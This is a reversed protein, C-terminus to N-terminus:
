MAREVIRDFALDDFDEDSDEGARVGELIKIKEHFIVDPTEPDLDLGAAVASAEAARSTLAAARKVKNALEGDGDTADMMQSIVVAVMAGAATLLGGLSGVVDKWTRIFRVKTNLQVTAEAFKVQFAYWDKVDDAAFDTLLNQPKIWKDRLCGDLPLSGDNNVKGDFDCFLRYCLTSSDLFDVSKCESSTYQPPWYTPPNTGPYPVTDRTDDFLVAGTSFGVTSGITETNYQLRYRDHGTWGKNQGKNVPNRYREPVMTIEISSEDEGRFLANSSPFLWGTVVNEDTWCPDFSDAEESFQGYVLCPNDEGSGYANLNDPGLGGLGYVSDGTIRYNVGKASLAVCDYPDYMKNGTGTTSTYPPTKTRLPGEPCNPWTIIDITPSSAIYSHTYGQSPICCQTDEQNVFDEFQWNNPNNCQEGHEADLKNVWECEGGCAGQGLYTVTAGSREASCEGCSPAERGWGCNVM